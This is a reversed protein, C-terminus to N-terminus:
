AVTMKVLVDDGKYGVGDDVLNTTMASPKQLAITDGTVLGAVTLTYVGTTGDESILSPVIEVGAATRVIFDGSPTTSLGTVPVDTGEVTVAVVITTANSSNVTLQVPTLGEIDLASWAIDAGEVIAADDLYQNVQTDNLGVSIVTKFASDTGNNEEPKEVTFQNFPIPYLPNATDNPDEIGRYGGLADIHFWGGEPNNVKRLQKDQYPNSFWKVKWKKKGIRIYESGLPQEDYQTEEDEVEVVDFAPYPFLQENQIALLVKDKDYADAETAFKFGPVTRWFRAFNSWSICIKKVNTAASKSACSGNYAM